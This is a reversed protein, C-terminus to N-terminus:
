DAPDVDRRTLLRETLEVHPQMGLMRYTALARELLELGQAREGNDLLLGGLDRETHAVWPRAGMRENTALAEELHRQADSSRECTLALLGLYRSVSGRFGEGVDAATLGSWPLLLPYMAAAAERDDLLWATEALLSMAFLWEQDFPVGAFGDAALEGLLRGAEDSRGLRAEVYALCCRFVPRAPSEAAVRGVAPEVGELGGCFDCLTTRQLEYIDVAAEPLAHEGISRGLEMLEVGEAFRGTALAILAATSHIEWLPIAQRIEEAVPTSTALEDVAGKLDGTLILNALLRLAHGAILRERDGSRRAVDRLESGLALCEALTDPAMIAHGRGALAHGLLVPDGSRRALAVAEASLRGRRERSPEDRLAGALRSLLRVRLADDEDGLKALAEELLPVLRHDDRARGWVIQGGYGAAARALEHTLDGTRALAAAELFTGKAGARDGARTEAEGLLLLLECRARDDVSGALVLSELALRYLRAAEDYSHLTVAHDAARRAYALSRAYEQAALGVTALEHLHEGGPADAYLQELAAFVVSHLRARRALPLGEYLTDRILVHAFRLRNHAGPLDTVVRADVGEELIALLRDLPVAAAVAVPDLDFERGLVAALELVHLCEPGLHRLRRAIVERVSDPIRIETKPGEVSLLRVTEAVFLPNGETEDHLKRALEPSALGAATLEVYEDIDDEDLGRLRLRAIGPGGALNAQLAALPRQLVPDVDRYAALVLLRMGELERALFQLLLLSPEDAAHLDDLVVVTPTSAAAARLFQVTADFLVFRSADSNPARAEPLEPLRERLEPLLLTMEAAGSGLQERLEPAGTERVLGRLAQAWPWFAPAGGGEWCRGVVVRVGSGRAGAALEDMLRSKGIGPEGSLLFLRGRGTVADALGESLEDLEATRGVFAGRREPRHSAPQTRRQVPRELEPAQNLIARELAQLEPGPDLGLEADLLSRTSQYLELAEAQRGARYLALMLQRRPREWLPRGRILAELEPVLEDAWGLLLRAEALDAAATARLEDLRNIEDQAFRDFRFDAYADGRWLGLAETLVREASAPDGAALLRQAEAVLREAQEADVDAPEARLLYGTSTTVIRDRGLRTRLRSVYIQVTKVANQPTREEWLEDVLRDVTLPRGANAVLLALLAAERGRGVTVDRGDDRVEFLGLVRFDV